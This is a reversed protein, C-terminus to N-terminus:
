KTTFATFHYILQQILFSETIIILEIFSRPDAKTDGHAFVFEGEQVIFLHGCLQDTEMILLLGVHVKIERLDMAAGTKIEQFAKRLQLPPYEGRTDIKTGSLYGNYEIMRLYRKPLQGLEERSETILRIYAQM